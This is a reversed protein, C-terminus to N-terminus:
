KIEAGHMDIKRVEGTSENEEIWYGSPQAFDPRQRGQKIQKRYASWGKRTARFHLRRRFDVKDVEIYSIEYLGPDSESPTFHDIFVKIYQKEISATLHKYWFRRMSNTQAGGNWEYHLSAVNFYWPDDGCATCLIKWEQDSIENTM